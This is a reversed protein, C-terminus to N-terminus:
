MECFCILFSHCFGSEGDYRCRAREAHMAARQGKREKKECGFFSPLEAERYRM